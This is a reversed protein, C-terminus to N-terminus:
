IDPIFQPEVEGLKNLLQMQTMGATVGYDALASTIEAPLPSTTDLMSPLVILRPDQQAAQLQDATMMCYCLAHAGFHLPAPPNRLSYDRAVVQYSDTSVYAGAAHAAAATGNVGRVVTCIGDTIGSVTMNEQDLYLTLPFPAPPPAMVTLPFTTSVADVDAGLKGLLFSWPNTVELESWVWRVYTGDSKTFFM